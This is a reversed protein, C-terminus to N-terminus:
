HDFMGFALNHVVAMARLASVYNVLMHVSLVVSLQIERLDVNVFVYGTIFTRFMRNYCQRPKPRFASALRDSPRSRM